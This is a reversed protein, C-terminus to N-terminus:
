AACHADARASRPCQDAHHWRPTATLIVIMPGPRMPPPSARSNAAAPCSMV